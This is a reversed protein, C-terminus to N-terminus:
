SKLCVDTSHLCHCLLNYRLEKRTLNCGTHQLAMRLSGAELGEAATPHLHTVNKKAALLIIHTSYPKLSSIQQSMSKDNTVEMESARVLDVDAVVAPPTDAAPSDASGVAAAVTGTTDKDM